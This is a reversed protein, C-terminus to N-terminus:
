HLIASKSASSRARAPPSEESSSPELGVSGVLGDGGAEEELGGGVLMAVELLRPVACAVDEFVAARLGRM